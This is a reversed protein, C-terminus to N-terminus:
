QLINSILGSQIWGKLFSAARLGVDEEKHWQCLGECLEGFSREKLVADLAYSEDQSLCYFRNMNDYRWLVWSVPNSHKIPKEIPQNNTLTEWLTVVDWLLSICQVSPHTKLRMNGWSKAPIEMMQSLQFIPLDTADFTLTMAWEFAALESLFQSEVNGQYENTLYSALQSGYWRISRYTSPHLHIYELGMRQFDEDGLYAKLAPFNSALAELLRTQYADRYVNLRTNASILNTGVVSQEIDILGTLLYRQFDDQIGSLDKM